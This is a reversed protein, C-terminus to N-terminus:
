KKAAATSSSGEPRVEVKDLVAENIEVKASKRLSAVYEDMVKSRKELQLRSVIRPKVSDFSQDFGLQRAALRLIVLGRDTEVPGAVDGVTKLAQAADAVPQGYQKALEERTRFGTDGGMAQTTTDSSRSRAAEAFMGASAAPQAKRLEAVLKAADSRVKAAQSDTKSTALVIVGLRTREARVFEELHSQYYAKLDQEPIDTAKAAAEMQRRILEQVLVKDLIAKVAPDKELGQRRAEQNLLEFRVLNDVFEKKKELTTYRARIVPAQEEMKAQYEGVTIRHDGVRAVEQDDAPKGGPSKRCGAAAALVAALALLIAVGPRKQEM